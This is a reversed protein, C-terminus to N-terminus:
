CPLPHQWAADAHALSHLATPAEPMKDWVGTDVLERQVAPWNRLPKKRTALHEASRWWRLKDPHNPVPEEIWSKPLADHGLMRGGAGIGRAANGAGSGATVPSNADATGTRLSSHIRDPRVYSVSGYQAGAATTASTSM